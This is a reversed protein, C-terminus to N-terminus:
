VWSLIPFVLIQIISTKQVEEIKTMELQQKLTLYIGKQIELDRLLREEELQLAPSAVQRNQERFRKLTEESNELDDEVASIRKLIFERQNENFVFNLSNIIQTSSYIDDDTYKIKGSFKEVLKKEYIIKKTKDKDNDKYDPGKVYFDPKILKIIDEASSSNSIIVDDIVKIEKLYELRQQQNFLPRGPGKKIFKNATLSVILYDGFSKASKFHKIHGLHVLDFVGHCLVIKKNKLRLKNLKNKIKKINNIM